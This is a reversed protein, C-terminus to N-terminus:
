STRVVPCMLSVLFLRAPLPSNFFYFSLLPIIWHVTIQLPPTLNEIAGIYWKSKLGINLHIHAIKERTAIYKEDIKAEFIQTVHKKLSKKLREINSYQNIIDVLEKEEQIKQYFGNMISDIEKSIYPYLENVLQLDQETLGIFNIKEYFPHDTSLLLFKKNNPLQRNATSNATKNFFLM